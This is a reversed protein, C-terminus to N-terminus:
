HTVSTCYAFGQEIAENRTWGTHHDYILNVLVRMEHDLALANMTDQRSTGQRAWDYMMGAFESATNCKQTVLDDYSQAHAVLSACLLASLALRQM